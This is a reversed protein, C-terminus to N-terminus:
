LWSRGNDNAWAWGAGSFNTLRPKGYADTARVARRRPKVDDVRVPTVDLESHGSSSRVEGGALLMRYGGRCVVITEDRSDRLAEVWAGHDETEMHITRM